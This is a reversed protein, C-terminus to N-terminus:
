FMKSQDPASPLVQKLNTGLIEFISVKGREPAKFKECMALQKGDPSVTIHTIARANASGVSCFM